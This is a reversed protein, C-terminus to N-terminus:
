PPRCQEFSNEPGHHGAKAGWTFIQPALSKRKKPEDLIKWQRSKKKKAEQAKKGSHLSAEKDSSTHRGKKAEQAKKGSDLSAEKDGSTQRSKKATSRLFHSSFDLSLIRDALYRNNYRNPSNSSNTQASRLQMIQFYHDLFTQQSLNSKKKKKRKKLFAWERGGAL